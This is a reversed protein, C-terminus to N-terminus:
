CTRASSRRWAGLTRLGWRAFDYVSATSELTQQRPRRRPPWRCRSLRLHSQRRRRRGRRSGITIAAADACPRPSHSGRPRSARVHAMVRVRSRPPPAISAADLDALAGLWGLPLRALETREAGAPVVTLGSRAHALLWASTPPPSPSAFISATRRRWRTCKMPLREPPGLVRSLGSADFVVAADGHAAVRPVRGRSRSSIAPGAAHCPRIACSVAASVIWAGSGMRRLAAGCATASGGARAELALTAGRASRGMPAQGVLVGATPRGENAHALRMWTAWPLPALRAAACRGFRARGRWVRGCAFDSRVGARGSVRRSRRASTVVRDHPETWAGLARAGSGRGRRQSRQRRASRHCGVLAM